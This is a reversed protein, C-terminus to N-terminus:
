IVLSLFESIKGGDEYGKEYLANLANRDRTLTDVGCTDSPAVILAKGEKELEKAKAVGKNYNDCRRRIQEASLPYKREVFKAYFADKSNKRIIDKPKTLILILKDCGLEFAKDIPITDGLAGDYYLSGDINYPKCAVPLSSSAKLINYNNRKLNSKDFYIPKGTKVDTAVVLMDSKKNAMIADYDLPNEGDSNSLTSYIYDLDLYNGTRLLNGISMYEKRQSYETYFYYTRKRQGAVYTILNASGASVGICLDFVIKKDLCYDLVGASYVGRLGGGVDIIGIKM